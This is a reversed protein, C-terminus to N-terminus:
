NPSYKISTPLRQKYMRSKSIDDCRKYSFVGHGHSDNIEISITDSVPYVVFSRMKNWTKEDSSWAFIPKIEVIKAEGGIVKFNYWVMRGSENTGVTHGGVHLRACNYKPTPAFFTKLRTILSM